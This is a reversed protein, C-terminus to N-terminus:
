RGCQALGAADGGAAVFRWRTQVTVSMTLEGAQIPTASQVDAMARASYMPRPQPYGGSSNSVAQILAGLRGGAAEAMATADQCASQIASRLATRRLEEQRSSSFDLSNVGNAGATLAADIYNGVKAIDKVQVQVMNRATYGVVRSVRTSDNYQVDPTMTYSVTSIDSEAVGARRLASIVASQKTANEAGAEAATAGNTEVGLIITARDPTVKVEGTGTANIEPVWDQGSGPTPAQARLQSNLLFTAGLAALVVTSTKM